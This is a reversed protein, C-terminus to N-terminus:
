FASEFITKFVLGDSNPNLGRGLGLHVDSKGLKGDWVLYATRERQGTPLLRALPGAEEYYELGFHHRGFANYSVKVAPEFNVRRQPGSLARVLAPNVIWHWRGQRLGLIPIWEATWIQAEGERMLRGAEANWGWYFGDDEDHPAIYQLELRFGSSRLRSQMLAVPLQVSFEWDKWIGYSYEPMLQLPAGSFAARSSPRWAKNIHTELNHEGEAALEDSFVKIENPAAVTM